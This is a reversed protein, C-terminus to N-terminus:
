TDFVINLHSVVAKATEDEDVVLLITDDGAVTGIINKQELADVFVAIANAMGPFTKIVVINKAAVVKIVSKTLSSNIVPITEKRGHSVSYKYTGRPTMTKILQLDRIDRSLTTQTAVIGEERLRQILTDQTDIDYKEIIELIKKQRLNKM